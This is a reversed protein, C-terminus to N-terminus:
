LEEAKAMVLAGKAVATLPDNALRISSIKVALRTEKVKKEFMERFGNPQVSGGSLVIPVAGINPISVKQLEAKLQAIINNVMEGYYIQLATEVRNNTKRTLDLSNEKVAKVDIALENLAASATNDVFDGATQVSFSLVPVALYSVCVNCMTAGISIGIGTYNEAALEAMIVALGENVAMTTYGLRNFFNSLVGNHYVLQNFGDLPKGPLSFCLATAPVKPRGILNQLIVEILPVGEHGQAYGSPVPRWSHTHFEESVMENGYGMLFGLNNKQFYPIENEILTQKTLNLFPVSGCPFSIREIAPNGEGRSEAFVISSTGIDVGVSGEPRFAKQGGTDKGSAETTVASTSIWGTNNNGGTSLTATAASLNKESSSRPGQVESDGKLGLSDEVAHVLHEEREETM